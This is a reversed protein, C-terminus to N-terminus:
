FTKEPTKKCTTVTYLLTGCDAVIFRGSEVIVQIKKNIVKEWKDIIKRM